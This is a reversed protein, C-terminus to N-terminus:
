CKLQKMKKELSTYNLLLIYSIFLIYMCATIIYIEKIMNM